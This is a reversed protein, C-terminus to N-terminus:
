SSSTWPKAGSENRGCVEIRAEHLRNRLDDRKGSVPPGYGAPRVAFLFCCSGTLEANATRMNVSITTGGTSTLSNNFGPILLTTEGGRHRRTTRDLSTGAAAPLAGCVRM